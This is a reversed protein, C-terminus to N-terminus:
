YAIAATPVGSSLAAITAHMRTGCCWDCRSILWKAEGPRTLAPAIALRDSPGGVSRAVAECAQPDSEHHGAPVVVHPVLLVNARSEALLRAVFARMVERYSAKFGFDRVAREPDNHILGSVNIGVTPAAREDGLWRSLPAPLAVDPVGPRLLSAVDFTARR